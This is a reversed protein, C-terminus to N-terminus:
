NSEALEIPSGSTNKLEIYEMGKGEIPDYMLETIKLAATESVIISATTPASWTSDNKARVTITSSKEIPFPIGSADMISAELNFSIDKDTRFGRHVEVALVNKGTKLTPQEVFHSYFIQSSKTSNRKLSYTRYRITGSPMNSRFLEEGNLYVVAGDDRLLNIIMSKPTTNNINFNKLFYITNRYKSTTTSGKEAITTEDGDGYGFEAKGKKWNSSDFNLSTWDVKDLNDGSDLYSWESNKHIILETEAPKLKKAFPSLEGNPLRPDTGNDTYYVEDTQTRIGLKFGPLVAGKNMSLIPAPIADFQTDMWALRQSIWSKLQHIETDFGNNRNVLGWKTFNRKAPESLLKQWDEIISFINNESMVDNRVNAWRQAYIEKFSKNRMVRSWWGFHYSGSWGVPNSARGDDDCGMTRDFDWVPGYELRKNRDKFFYTSLRLGDPNKTFENLMHHDVWSLPDIYEDYKTPSSLNRYVDNFFTRVYASQKSTVEEEKPEVWKVNQGGGNFGVDGPDPRDIKFMYGGTVEPQSNHDKSIRKVNVRNKGRTIKEMFVYVGVYDSYSLAGGNTNVFVECFRTRVAYRGIQNSLEYILANRILARDFNYPAYLIWDSDEPLGLPAIDKDEGFANRAEVTFAKKPRNQTSSGRIKIGIRTDLVPGNMLKTKGDQPNPEYIAMYGNKHPDSPISGGKFNEIVVVPLNSTFTRVNSALRIYTHSVPPGANGDLDYSRATLMTSNTILIPSNYQKSSENPISEDTTYRIIGNKNESTISVTISSFFSGSKSSFTPPSPRPLTANSNAKGPTTFSLFTRKKPEINSSKGCLLIPMVFFDNRDNSANFARISLVNKNGPKLLSIYESLDFNVFGLQKNLGNAYSNYRPKEPANSSAVTVGNISAIFGDDYYIRLILAKVTNLSKVEFNKRLWLSRKSTPIKRKILSSYYNSKSKSFGFGGQAYVWNEPIKFNPNEWDLSKDAATPTLYHFKSHAPIIEQLDGMMPVGYATDTASPPFNPTFEDILTGDPKSLSLYEGLRSLRFSAHLPKDPEAINNGSAHVILFDKPQIEISPFIWKQPNLPDDSLGWDLLNLPKDSPNYIEIWDSSEDFNDRLSKNNASVIESIYPDNAFTDQIQFALILILSYTFSNLRM